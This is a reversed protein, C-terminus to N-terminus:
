PREAARERAREEYLTKALVNAADDVGKAPASLCYSDMWEFIADNSRLPLLDEGLGVALGSLYGLLWFQDATIQWDDAKKDQLWQDCSVGGRTGAADACAPLTALALALAASVLTSRLPTFNM